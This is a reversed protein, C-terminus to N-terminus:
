IFYNFKINPCKANYLKKKPRQQCTYHCACDESLIGPLANDLSRIIFVVSKDIHYIWNPVLSPLFEIWLVPSIIVVKQMDM